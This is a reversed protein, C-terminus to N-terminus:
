EKAVAYLQGSHSLLIVKNEIVLPMASIGDSDIQEYSLLTGDKRSMWHLYGEFDAVVVENGVTVPATSPSSCKEGAPGHAFKPM